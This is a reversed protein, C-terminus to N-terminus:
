ILLRSIRFFEVRGPFNDKYKRSSRDLISDHIFLVNAEVQDFYAGFGEHGLSVVGDAELFDEGVRLHGFPGEIVVEAGLFVEADGDDVMVDAKVCFIAEGDEVLARPRGFFAQEGEEGSLFRVVLLFLALVTAQEGLQGHLEGQEAFGDAGLELAAHVAPNPRDGGAEGFPHGGAFEGEELGRRDHGFEEIGGPRAGDGAHLGGLGQLREVDEDGEGGALDASLGM